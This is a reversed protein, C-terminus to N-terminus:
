LDLWPYNQNVPEYLGLTKNGLLSISAIIIVAILSVMISYEVATTGRSTYRIRFYLDSLIKNIKDM